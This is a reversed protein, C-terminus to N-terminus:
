QRAYRRGGPGAHPGAAATSGACRVNYQMLLDKAEMQNARRQAVEAGTPVGAVAALEADCLLAGGRQKALRAALLELQRGKQLIAALRAEQEKGLVRRVATRVAEPVQDLTRVLSDVTKSLLDPYNALAANLNTVYAQHHKGHHIKMTETDIFPELASYDYPLPALEFAM